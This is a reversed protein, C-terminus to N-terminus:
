GSWKTVNSVCEALSDGLASWGVEVVDYHGWLDWDLGGIALLDKEM